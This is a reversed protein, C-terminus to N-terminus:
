SAATPNSGVFRPNAIRERPGSPCAAPTKPGDTPTSPAVYQRSGDHPTLSAVAHVGTEDTGTALLEPEEDADEGDEEMVLKPLHETIRRRQERDTRIYARETTRASSHGLQHQAVAVPAGSAALWSACTTRLAHFDLKRGEADMEALFESEARKMREEPSNGAAIWAERGRAADDRLLKATPTKLNMNFALAAPAKKGLVVALRRATERRLALVRLKRNKTSAKSKVTVAPEEGLDFSSRTLEVIAGRRLGTELAFLYLAAREPGTLSWGTKAAGGSQTPGRDAAHILWRAEEPTLARRYENDEVSLHELEAVPSSAARKSRVMWNCFMKVGTRYYNATRDSLDLDKRVKNIASEVRDATVQNWYKMRGAEFVRHVRNYTDRVHRASKKRDELVDRYDTLHKELPESAALRRSDILDFSVLRELMSPPLDEIWKALDGEPEQKAIRRGVLAEINRLVSQALAKDELTPMRRVLDHHDRFEIWWRPSERHRPELNMAKGAKGIAAKTPKGEKDLLAEADKSAIDALVALGGADLGEAKVAKRIERQMAHDDRERRKFIRGM